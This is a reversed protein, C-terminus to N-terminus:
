ISSFVNKFELEEESLIRCFGLERALDTAKLMNVPSWPADDRSMHTNTSVLHM